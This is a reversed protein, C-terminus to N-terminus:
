YKYKFLVWSVFDYGICGKHRDIHIIMETRSSLQNCQFKNVALNLM